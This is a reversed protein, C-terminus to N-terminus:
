IEFTESSNVADLALQVASLKEATREYAAQAEETSYNTIQYDIITGRSAFSEVRERPLRSAMGRYRAKDQNLQPLLVLARDVTLGPFGPLEHTANFVNIAHRVERVRARLAELEEQVAAFDYAPRLMEPDEGVAANFVSSKGEKELLVGIKEELGRLVKNAEASTVKM